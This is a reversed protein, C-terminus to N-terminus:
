KYHSGRLLALDIKKAQEMKIKSELQKNIAQEAQSAKSSKRTNRVNNIIREAIDVKSKVVVENLKVERFLTNVRGCVQVLSSENNTVPTNVSYIETLYKISCMLLPMKKAKKNPSYEYIFLRYLAFIQNRVKIERHKVSNLTIEWFLWIFDNHYKEEVNAIKRYGQNFNTRTQKVFLKEFTSIWSLWYLANQSNNIKLAAIFENGALQLEKSDGYKIYPQILSEDRAMMKDTTSMTKITPLTLSKGKGSHVIITILEIIQNRIAQVNRLQLLIDKDNKNKQNKQNKQNLVFFNKINVYFEFRILLKEALLPNNTYVNKTFINFLCNFIKEIYGSSLLEIGWHCAEELRNDILSKKFASQVESVKYGSITKVRFDTYPRTDQVLYKEPVQSIM